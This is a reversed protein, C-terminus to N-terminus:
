EAEVPLENAAIERVQDDLPRAVKKASPIENEQKMKEAVEKNKAVREAMEEPSKKEEEEEEVVAKAKVEKAQEDLPKAVPEKAEPIEKKEKMAEAVLKNDLQADGSSSDKSGEETSGKEKSSVRFDNRLLGGNEVTKKQQEGGRKWGTKFESGMEFRPLPHAETNLVIRNLDWKPNEEDDFLLYLYKLTETLWFSEMNDRLKPPNVTVDGLSTYRIEDDKGRGAPVKGYHVFNKFIEYGWNRYKEDGTIKWLYYLTEVTEPRQLNHRDNAKIYFDEKKESDTNFVVIEPALGTAEVDHYMRYCTKGIEKALDLQDYDIDDSISIPVGDTAGLAFMGGAFCVLHDMKNDLPGTLGNPREGIFTLGSPYSKNLLYKKIGAYSEQYMKLYVTEGTQLYQKLLYEYYSDGRSGLRILEGRYMGTDPDVFIPVLGSNVHNDDLVKMVKEVQDWYSKKGTLKALYKFELQLTSVEATSSGGRAPIGVGTHLNISAYPIGTQSDFAGSLKEALGIAKDLFLQDDTLYYTSLLGGLMRITTEFTSVDHDFKDYDLDNQVWSKADSFEKECDMLQLVDLSDVIIWGLPAPGMDTGRQSVPQYVDKGWGHRAYDHWSDLFVQKVELKRSEWAEPSPKDTSDTSSPLLSYIYLITYLVLSAIFAKFLM